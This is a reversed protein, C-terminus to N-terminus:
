WPSTSYPVEKCRQEILKLENFVTYWNHDGDILVLDMRDIAPLAELSLARHFVLRDGYREQWESVEYKPLPDIVHLTADNEECFELLNRTNDGHDSGVEIITEPQLIEAVPEIVIDWFRKLTEGTQPRDASGLGGQLM